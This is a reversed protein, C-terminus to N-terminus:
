QAINYITKIQTLQATEILYRDISVWPFRLSRIGPQPSGCYRDMPFAWYCWVPGCFKIGPAIHLLAHITLPCISMRDVDNQFYISCLSVACPEQHSKGSLTCLTTLSHAHFHCRTSIHYFQCVMSKRLHEAEAKTRAAEVEKGPAVIEAHTRM